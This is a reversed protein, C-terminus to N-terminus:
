WPGHRWWYYVAWFYLAVAVLAAILGGVLIGIGFWAGDSM